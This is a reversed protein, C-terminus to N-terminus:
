GNVAEAEPAAELAAKDFAQVAELAVTLFDYLGAALLSEVEGRELASTLTKLAAVNFADVTPSPASAEPADTEPTVISNLTADMDHVTPAADAEAAAVAEPEVYDAWKASRAKEIANYTPKGAAKLIAKELAQRMENGSMASRLTVLRVEEGEGIAIPTTLFADVFHLAVTRAMSGINAADKDKVGNETLGNVLDARESKSLDVLAKIRGKADTELNSGGEMHETRLRLAIVSAFDVVAVFKIASAADTAVNVGHLAAAVNAAINAIQM